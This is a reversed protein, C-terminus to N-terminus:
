LRRSRPDVADFVSWCGYRRGDAASKEYGNLAAKISSTGECDARMHVLRSLLRQLFEAEGRLSTAIYWDQPVWGMHGRSGQECVGGVGPLGVLEVNQAHILYFKGVPPM